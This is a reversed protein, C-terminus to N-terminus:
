GMMGTARIDRKPGKKILQFSCFSSNTTQNAKFHYQTSQLVVDFLDLPTSSKDENGAPGAVMCPHRHTAMEGSEKKAKTTFPCLRFMDTKGDVNFGDSWHPEHRYQPCLHSPQASAFERSQIGGAQKLLIVSFRERNSEWVRWTSSSSVSSGTMTSSALSKRSLFVGTKRSSTQKKM